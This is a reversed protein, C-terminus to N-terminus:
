PSQADRYLDFWGGGEKKRGGRRPGFVCSVPLPFHSTSCCGVWWNVLWGDLWGLLWGLLWGVLCGVLWGVLWGVLCCSSDLLPKKLPLMENAFTPLPRSGGWGQFYRFITLISSILALQAFLDVFICLSHMFDM